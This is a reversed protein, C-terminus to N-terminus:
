EDLADDDLVCQQADQPSGSAIWKYARFMDPSHGMKDAYAKVQLDTTNPTFVNTVLHTAYAHRFFVLTFSCGFIRTLTRGAWISYHTRSFPKNNSDVFLFNRPIAELSAQLENLLCPPFQNHILTYQKATKFDYLFSEASSNNLIRVFNKQTPTLKHETTDHLIETAYYDARCPPIMTYMSLLLREFSGKPLQDRKQCIQDYTITHGGKAQQMDTPKNEYRRQIIPAENENFIQTWYKHLELIQQQPFHSLINIKHRFISLISM